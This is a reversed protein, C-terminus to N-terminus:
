AAGPLTVWRAVFSGDKWHRIRQRRAQAGAEEDEHLKERPSVQDRLAQALRTDAHRELVRRRQAFDTITLDSTMM